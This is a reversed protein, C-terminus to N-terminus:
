EAKPLLGAEYLIGTIIDVATDDLKNETKSVHEKLLDLTVELVDEIKVFKVIVKLWRM